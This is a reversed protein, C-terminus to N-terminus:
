LPCSQFLGHANYHDAFKGLATNSSLFFAINPLLLVAKNNNSM